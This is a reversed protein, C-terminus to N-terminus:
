IFRYVPFKVTKYDFKLTIYNHIICMEVTQLDAKYLITIIKQM